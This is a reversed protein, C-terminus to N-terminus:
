LVSLHRRPFCCDGSFIILLSRISLTGIRIFHDFMKQHVIATEPCFHSERLPVHRLNRKTEDHLDLELM